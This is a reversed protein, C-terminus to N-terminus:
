SCFATTSRLEAQAIHWVCDQPECVLNKHARLFAFLESALRWPNVESSWFGQLFVTPLLFVCIIGCLRPSQATEHEKVTSM